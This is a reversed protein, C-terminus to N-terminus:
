RQEMTKCHKFNTDRIKVTNNAACNNEVSLFLFTEQAGIQFILFIESPDNSMSSQLLPQQFSLKLLPFHMKFYMLSLFFM